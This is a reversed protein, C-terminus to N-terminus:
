TAYRPAALRHFIDPKLIDFTRILASLWASVTWEVWQCCGRRRSAKSARVQTDFPFDNLEMSELFTGTVRRRECIYGKGDADIRAM